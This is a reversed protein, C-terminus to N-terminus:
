HEIEAQERVVEGGEIMQQGRKQRLDDRLLRWDDGHVGALLDHVLHEELTEPEATRRLLVLRAHELGVTRAVQM